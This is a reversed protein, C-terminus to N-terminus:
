KKIILRQGPHIASNYRLKNWKLLDSLRVKYKRAISTLYDGKKVKYVTHRRKSSKKQKTVTKKNSIVTNKAYYNKSLGALRAHFKNSAGKPILISRSGAVLYDGRIEPNMDKITKYYTSSAEAILQLPLSKSYNMKVRDFSLPPYLDEKTMHFGYKKLDSLILKVALIRFVYRQTEVPIYLHNYDRTKQAEIRRALGHEGMNYAAASLTWSGFDAYLKKFYKVAAVTSTFLNRREDINKDIRLGYRLGTSRIFQWFGVAGKSSGAHPRLASEIIAVYKLDDPMNNKKLVQEIYPMYKGCRKIWLIVQARDWLILLFEKEMRERLEPDSFSFSEGCFDVPQNIRISSILSPFRAPDQVYQSQAFAFCCNVVLLYVFVFYKVM